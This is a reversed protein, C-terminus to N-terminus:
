AHDHTTEKTDRQEQDFSPSSEDDDPGDAHQGDIHFQRIGVNWLDYILDSLTDEADSSSVGTFVVSNQSSTPPSYRILWASQASDWSLHAIFEAPSIGHDHCFSEIRFLTGESREFDDGAEDSYGRSEPPHVRIMWDTDRNLVEQAKGRWLYPDTDQVLATDHEYPISPTRLFGVLFRLFVHDPTTEDFSRNSDESTKDLMRRLFRRWADWDYYSRMEESEYLTPIMRIQQDSTIIQADRFSQELSRLTDPRITRPPVDAVTSMFLVPIFIAQFTGYSEFFIPLADEAWSRLCYAADEEDNADFQEIMEYITTGLSQDLLRGILRAVDDTLPPRRLTETFETSANRAYQMLRQLLLREIDNATKLVPLSGDPM